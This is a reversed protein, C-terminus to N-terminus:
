NRKKNSIQCKCTILDQLQSQCKQFTCTNDVMLHINSLQNLTLSCNNKVICKLLINMQKSCYDINTQNENVCWRNGNDECDGCYWNNGQEITCDADEYCKKIFNYDASVCIHTDFQCNLTEKCLPFDPTCPSGLDQSYFPVCTKNLCISGSSCSESIQCSGNFAIRHDCIYSNNCYLEISCSYNSCQEGYKKELAIIIYV